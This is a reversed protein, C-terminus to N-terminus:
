YTDGYIANSFYHHGGEWLGGALLVSKKLRACILSFIGLALITLFSQANTWANVPQLYLIINRKQEISPKTWCIQQVDAVIEQFDGYGMSISNKKGSLRKGVSSSKRFVESIM